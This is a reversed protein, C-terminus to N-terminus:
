SDDGLGFPLWPLSSKKTEDSLSFMDLAGHLRAQFVDIKMQDKAIYASEVFYAYNVINIARIYNVIKLYEGLAMGYGEIFIQKEDLSLDHLAISMDWFPPIHSCCMEWDLICSIVGEKTVLINKLRMDGHNLVPKEKWKEIEKLIRKLKKFEKPSMMDNKELIELRRALKMEKLLFDEWTENRSLQNSSWDFVNGYGSTPISHIIKTYEAMERVIRARKPHTEARLGEARRVIMYPFPVAENGVELIEPAPVKKERVKQVAWQEKVFLQLKAANESIRVILHEKGVTVDYVFNAAGGHIQEIHSPAKGIHHIILEEITQTTVKM